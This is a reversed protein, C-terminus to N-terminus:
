HFSGPAATTWSRLWAEAGLHDFIEGMAGVIRTPRGSLVEEVRNRDLLGQKVLHGDLLLERAADVNRLLIEQANEEMGGKSRRRLIELPVDPRFAQRAISRDWGGNILVYTPTRLCLEVLPQSILPEVQEPDDHAGLPDYYEQPFSLGYVHWLKGPPTNGISAFLPHEFRNGNRVSAITEDTVLARHRFADEGPDFRAGPACNRIAERMVHWISSRSLHAADLSVSVFRRDIGKLRLYDAAGFVAQAQYLLQDGGGGGFIAGAGVERALHAESRSAQLPGLYFAPAPTREMRGMDELRVDSQREWELLRCGARRAALRAFDREDGDCGASHYNLCTVSPGTPADQLCGLVISSDLGGSLKHLIGTYCSAWAHVCAKAVRRLERIAFDADEIVETRAVLFPNWAFSHIVRGRNIEVLEGPLVEFVENIATQRSQLLMFVVRAAMSEWNISFRLVGLRLCDEVSSFYLDIGRFSARYCPMGGTPDRLVWSKGSAADHAFAVYRGWCSDVLSRCSSALLQRTDDSCFSKKAPMSMAADDLPKFATGLLVGANDAFIYPESSGARQGCSFVRMGPVAFAGNWQKAGEQLLNALLQATEAQGCSTEDWIFAIYGFM